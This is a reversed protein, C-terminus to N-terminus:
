KNSGAPLSEVLSCRGRYFIMQQEPQINPKRFEEGFHKDPIYGAYDFVNGSCTLAGNIQFLAYTAVAGGSFFVKSGFISSHTLVGGGSELAKVSLVHWKYLADKGGHNLRRIIGDAALISNIPSSQSSQGQNPTTLSAPKAQKQNSQTDANATNTQAAGQPTAQSQTTGGLLSAVFSDISAIIGSIDALQTQLAQNQAMFEQAALTNATVDANAKKQAQAIKSQVDNLSNTNSAFTTTIGQVQGALCVRADILMRLNNLFPSDTIQLGANPDYSADLAFSGYLSPVLTPVGIVRFQRAIGDVLAQDQITGPVGATSENTAFLQAINQILSVAGGVSATITDFSRNTENELQVPSVESNSCTNLYAAARRRLIGIIAMNLRWAQINTLTPDDSSLIVVGPAEQRKRQDDNAPVGVPSFTEGVRSGCVQDLHKWQQSGQENQPREQEHSAPEFPQSASTPDNFILYAAVDCAIAESNSELSKYALMEAEISFGGVGSSNGGSSDGGKGGGSQGGNGSSSQSPSSQSGGSYTSKQAIGIQNALLLIILTWRLRIM